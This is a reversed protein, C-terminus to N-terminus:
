PDPAAHTGGAPALKAFGPSRSSGSSTRGCALYAAAGLSLLSEDKMSYRELM